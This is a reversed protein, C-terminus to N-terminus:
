ALWRWLFIVLGTIFLAGFIAKNHRALWNPLYIDFNDARDQTYLAAVPTLPCQGKNVALTICEVLVVVSWTAAWDFKRMLAVAPLALICSAVIAWILTHLLKIAILRSIPGGRRPRRFSAKQLALPHRTLLRQPEDIDINELRRM